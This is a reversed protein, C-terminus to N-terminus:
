RLPTSFGAWASERSHCICKWSNQLSTPTINTIHFLSHYSQKCLQSFICIPSKGGPSGTKFYNVLISNYTQDPFPSWVEYHFCIHILFIGLNFLFNQFNLKVLLRMVLRLYWESKQHILKFCHYLKTYKKIM